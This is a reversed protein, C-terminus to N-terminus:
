ARHQGRVRRLREGAAELTERRKCFAFRVWDRGLHKHEESYFATPPIAAVGVETTLWRCFAADDDIGNGVGRYDAMIFYTGQPMSVRLGADRLVGALFDRKAQYDARLAEFYEDDLALAAAAAAQFPTSTAFTVFQHANRVARTLAPPAVVWGVKWGTFSFTKGHSSVTLTRKAMGPMQALRRHQAGTFVLHEYVEDCLAAVDWQQCLAAIEALEAQTFVKGTPNHPTNLILLRTRANFAARLEELAYHWHAHGAGPAHLPV